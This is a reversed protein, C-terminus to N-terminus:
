RQDNKSRELSKALAAVGEPTGNIRAIVRPHLVQVSKEQKPKNLQNM